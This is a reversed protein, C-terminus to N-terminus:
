PPIPTMLFLASTTRRKGLASLLCDGASGLLSVGHTAATLVAASPGLRGGLCAGEKSFVSRAACGLYIAFIFTPLAISYLTPPPCEAVARALVDRQTDTGNNSHIQTIYRKSEQQEWL